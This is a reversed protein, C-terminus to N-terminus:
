PSPHLGTEKEVVRFLEQAAMELSKPSADPNSSSIRIEMSTREPGAPKATIATSLRDQDREGKYIGQIIVGDNGLRIVQFSSGRHKNAYDQLAMHLKPHFSMFDVSYTRSFSDRVIRDVLVGKLSACSYISFAVALTSAWFFSQITM